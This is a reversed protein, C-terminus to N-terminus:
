IIYYGITCNDLNTFSQFCVFGISTDHLLIDSSAATAKPSHRLLELANCFIM